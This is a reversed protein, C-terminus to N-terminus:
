CFAMLSLVVVGGGGGGDNDDFLLLDSSSEDNVFTTSVWVSRRTSSTNTYMTGGMFVLPPCRASSQFKALGSAVHARFKIRRSLVSRIRSM